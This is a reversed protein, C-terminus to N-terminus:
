LVTVAEGVACKHVKGNMVYEFCYKDNTKKIWVITDNESFMKAIMIADAKTRHTTKLGNVITDYNTM